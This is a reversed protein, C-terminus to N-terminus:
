RALMRSSWLSVSYIPALPQAFSRYVSWSAWSTRVHSFRTAKHWESANLYELTFIM